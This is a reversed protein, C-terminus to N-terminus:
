PIELPIIEMGVPQMLAQLKELSAADEPDLALFMGTAHHWGYSVVIPIGKEFIFLHYVAKEPELDPIDVVAQLAASVSLWDTGKRANVQNVLLAVGEMRNLLQQQLAPSLGAFKEEESDSLVTYLWSRAEAPILRYLSVPTDYDGTNFRTDILEQAADNYPIMMELYDHSRVMEDLIGAVQLGAEYYEPSEAGAAAPLVALVLCLLALVMRSLGPKIWTMM